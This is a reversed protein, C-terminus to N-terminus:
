RWHWFCWRRIPFSARCGTVTLCCHGDDSISSLCLLPDVTLRDIAIMSHSVAAGDNERQLKRYTEQYIYRRPGITVVEIMRNEALRYVIRFRGLRFSRLGALEEKLSKGCTPSEVIAQLAARVKSKISPHLKRILDAVDDPIRLKHIVRDSRM